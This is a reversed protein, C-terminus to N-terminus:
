NIKLIKYNKARDFSYVVDGVMIGGDFQANLIDETEEVLVFCMYSYEPASFVLKRYGLNKDQCVGVILIRQTRFL